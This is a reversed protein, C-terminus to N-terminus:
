VEVRRERCTVRCQAGQDLYGVRVVNEESRIIGKGRDGRNAMETLNELLGGEGTEVSSCNIPTIRRLQQFPSRRGDCAPAGASLAAEAGGGDCAGGRPEPPRSPDDPRRANAM